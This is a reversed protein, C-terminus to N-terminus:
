KTKKPGANTFTFEYSYDIYNTFGEPADQTVLMVAKDSWRLVKDLEFLSNQTVSDLKLRAIKYQNGKGSGKMGVFTVTFHNQVPLIETLSKFPATSSGDSILTGDVMVNDIFWGAETTAWDTVYRFGVLINQGAFASLDFSMPVWADSTTGTLGPLNAIVTPHANVDHVSTTSANALSTWTTGGDTSVQVFGFDWFEEINYQTDFTLTGGGVTPFIAWNDVLDGTGGWLVSGNSTWVTPFTSYDLGNFTLKGLNKPDGNVWIFDTGWPPAGPTDYAEPNPVAPTGINLPAFYWSLMPDVNYFQYRNGPTKSNILMAVSWDHFVDAFTTNINLQSLSSNVGSIGNAPNHFLSQIFPKGYLQMLYYQFLYAQGYDTLIELDGQDGWVTLSNEPRSVAADVHGKVAIGYGTLYEALNSMGENIFTEEDSDYDDHLLHQYEHAFVGEYLYPRTSSPGTRNLWDYADISMVNRDFYTEFSPSYFGAIYIPYNPDYYNADRVNSVLVIQRGAADFYYDAPLGLLGPLYANTGDLFNPIGFFSTEKPYINSDFQGQLYQVQDCTVVPTPRPDGSPWALNAQVWVQSTPSNGMLNFYTAQYRGLYDNLILYIKSATICDTASANVVTQAALQEAALDAPSGPDVREATAEWGRIEPGADVPDYDPPPPAAFITVPTFGLLLILIALLSGIKRKM